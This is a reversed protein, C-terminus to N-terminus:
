ASPRLGAFARIVDYLDPTVRIEDDQFDRLWTHNARLAQRLIPYLDGLWVSVTAEQECTKAADNESRPYLRLNCTAM